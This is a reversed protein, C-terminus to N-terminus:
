SQWGNFQISALGTSSCTPCLLPSASSTPPQSHNVPMTAGYEHWQQPFAKLPSPASETQPTRSSVSPPCATPTDFRSVSRSPFVRSAPCHLNTTLCRRQSGLALFVSRRCALTGLPPTCPKRRILLPPREAKSICSGTCRFRFRACSSGKSSTDASFSPVTSCLKRWSKEFKKICVKGLDRM